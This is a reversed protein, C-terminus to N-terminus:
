RGQGNYPCSEKAQTEFADHGEQTEGNYPRLVSRGMEAFDDITFKKM